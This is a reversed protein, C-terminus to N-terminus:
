ADIVKPTVDIVRGSNVVEAFIVALNSIKDPKRALIGAAKIGQDITVDDPYQIARGMSVDIVTQLFQDTTTQRPIVAGQRRKKEVESVFKDEPALLHTKHKAMTTRTVTIEKGTFDDIFHRDKIWAVLRALSWGQKVRDNVEPEFSAACLKCYGHKGQGTRIISATDSV